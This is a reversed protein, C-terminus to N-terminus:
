SGRPGRPIVRLAPGSWVIRPVESRYYFYIFGILAAMLVHWLAHGQFWSDSACVVHTIDLIWIVCATVLSALAGRLYANQVRSRRARRVIRETVLVALILAIFIPRRLLPWRVSAYGLGVNAGLYGLVFVRDDVRRLRSLNYLVMFITMLYMSIVDVAQGAFVLSSHYLMSGVGILVAALAYVTPYVLRTRMLNSPAGPVARPVDQGAVALITLGMLVFALNSWTNVPQRILGGRVRECFCHDPMCTAPRWGEWSYELLRVDASGVDGLPANSAVDSHALTRPSADFLTARRVLAALALLCIVVAIRRKM